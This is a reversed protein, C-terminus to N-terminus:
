LYQCGPQAARPVPLRSSRTCTRARVIYYRVIIKHTLDPDVPNRSLTYRIQLTGLFLVGYRYPAAVFRGYRYPAAATTCRIQLARGCLSRISLACSRRYVTDTPRLWDISRIPLACMAISRIQLACSCHYVTDTPYRQTWSSSRDTHVSDVPHM